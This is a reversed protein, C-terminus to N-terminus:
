LKNMVKKLFLKAKVPAVFFNKLLKLLHRKERPGRLTALLAYLTSHKTPLAKIFDRLYLRDELVKISNEGQVDVAYNIYPENFISSRPRTFLDLIIGVDHHRGPYRFSKRFTWQTSNNIYLGSILPCNGNKDLFYLDLIAEIKDSLCTREHINFSNSAFQLCTAFNLREENITKKVSIIHGNVDDDDHHIFLLSKENELITEFNETSCTTYSSDVYRIKRRNCERRIDTRGGSDYVVIEDNPCFTCLSDIVGYLEKTRNNSMIAHTFRPNDLLTNYM